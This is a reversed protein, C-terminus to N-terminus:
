TVHYSAPKKWKGDKGNSLASMIQELDQINSKVLGIEDDMVNFANRVLKKISEIQNDCSIGLFVPTQGPKQVERRNGNKSADKTTEEFKVKRM